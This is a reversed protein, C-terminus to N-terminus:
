QYESPSVGAARFCGKWGSRRFTSTDCWVGVPYYDGMVAQACHGAQEIQLPTPPIPFSAFSYTCGDQIAQQVSYPFNAAPLMNRFFIAKNTQEDGWPLWNANAPLWDPAMLDDSIVTTYFGKRDLRANLDTLCDVAPFPVTYDNVCLSWYRLQVTRFPKAPQLVSGGNYTNPFSPAKGRLVIIRGHQYNGPAANIYKNNPNPVLSPPAKDPPAFWLRDPSVYSNVGTDFPYFQNMVTSLDSFTNVAACPALTQTNGNQDTLTVGPLVVGGTTNQGEDPLYIRYIVWSFGSETAIKNDGLDSGSSRIVKVTYTGSGGQKTFPNGSGADPQINADYISDHVNGPRQGDYTVFSMYRANPYSGHITMQVWKSELPMMWYRATTDPWTCNGAGHPTLEYPWACDPSYQAAAIGPVLALASAIFGAIILARSNVIAERFFSRPWKAWRSSTLCHFWVKQKSSVNRATRIM